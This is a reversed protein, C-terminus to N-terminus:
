TCQRSILRFHNEDLKSIIDLLAVACEHSEEITMSSFSVLDDLSDAHSELQALRELAKIRAPEINKNHQSVAEIKSGFGNTGPYKFALFIEAVKRLANPILFQYEDLIEESDAFNKILSFLYHYESDYDRILKPLKTITTSRIDPTLLKVDLYLLAAKKEEAIAKPKLWSRCSNLFNINHTLIILQSCSTLYAKILGFVYNLSKTDLSSIPDDVVIILDKINRGEAQLSSLFYCFTIATKEGESLNKAIVGDNRHVEFGEDSPVIEINDHLLYNKILTNIASAAPGHQRISNKLEEITQTIINLEDTYQKLNEKDQIHDRVVQDYRDSNESLFHNKLETSAIAKLETFKKSSINHESFSEQISIIDAKLQKEINQCAEEDPLKDKDIIVSPASIKKELLSSITDLIKFIQQARNNFGGLFEQYKRRHNIEIDNPSPLSNLTEQILAKTENVLTIGNNVEIIIQDLNADIIYALNKKRNESLEGQCFICSNLKLKDHYSYGKLVWNLMEEHKELNAAALNGVTKGLSKHVEIVFDTLNIQSLKKIPINEIIPLPESQSLLKRYERFRDEDLLNNKGYKTQAYDKDLARANYTRLNVAISINKATELKFERSVEDSRKVLQTYKNINSQTYVINKEQEKLQKGIENQERGVYFIPKAAGEKWSFNEDVYDSNFVAINNVLRDINKNHTINEGNSLCFEFQTNTPLHDSIKGLELSSFLRSLTTKGSGNFGYVLNYRYLDTESSKSTYNQFIGTNTVKKIQKILM